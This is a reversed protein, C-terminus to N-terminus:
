NLTIRIMVQDGIQFQVIPTKALGQTHSTYHPTCVPRNFKPLALWLGAELSIGTKEGTFRVGVVFTELAYERARSRM